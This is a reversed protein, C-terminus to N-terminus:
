GIELVGLQDLEETGLDLCLESGALARLRSATRSQSLGAPTV